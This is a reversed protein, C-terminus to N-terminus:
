RSDSSGHEVGFACAAHSEIYAASIWAHGNLGWAEGWTNRILFWPQSGEDYGLGVAVVAHMMAGPLVTPSFSIVGEVPRYFDLTLKLALGMPVMAQMSGILHGVDAAFFKISRGHLALHEPLPELPLQPEATQYPYERETPHGLQSAEIAAPIQLGDGPKWGPIRSLTARYFYEPGLDEDVFSRNLDTVAFALCTPRNGQNKAAVPLKDVLCEVTIM